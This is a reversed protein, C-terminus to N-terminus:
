QHPVARVRVHRGGYFLVRPRRQPTHPKLIHISLTLPVPLEHLPAVIKGISPGKCTYLLCPATVLKFWLVVPDKSPSQLSETFMYHHHKGPTSQM